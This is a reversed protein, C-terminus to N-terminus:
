GSLSPRRDPAVRLPSAARKVHGQAGTWTPVSAELTAIRAAFNDEVMRVTIAGHVSGCLWLVAAAGLLAPARVGALQRNM